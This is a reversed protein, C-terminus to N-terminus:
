QRWHHPLSDYPIFSVLRGSCLYLLVCGETEPAFGIAGFSSYAHVLDDHRDHYEIGRKLVLAAQIRPLSRSRSPGLFTGSPYLELVRESYGLYRTHCYRRGHDLLLHADEQNPLRPFIPHHNLSQRHGHQRQLIPHQALLASSQHDTQAWPIQNTQLRTNKGVKKQQIRDLPDIESEHM